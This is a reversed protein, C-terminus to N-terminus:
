IIAVQPALFSSTALTPSLPPTSLACTQLTQPEPFSYRKEFEVAASHDWSTSSLSETSTASDPVQQSAGSTQDLPALDDESDLETLPGSSISSPRALYSRFVPTSERTALSERLKSASLFSNQQPQPPEKELLPLIEHMFRDLLTEMSTRMTDIEDLLALMKRARPYRQLFSRDPACTDQGELPVLNSPRPQLNSDVLRLDSSDKPASRPFLKMRATELEEKVFKLYRIKLDLRLIQARCERVPESLGDFEILDFQDSM